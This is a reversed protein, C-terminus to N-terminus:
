KRIKGCIRCVEKGYCGENDYDVWSHNCTDIHITVNKKSEIMDIIDTTDTTECYWDLLKSKLEFENKGTVEFTKFDGDLDIIRTKIM